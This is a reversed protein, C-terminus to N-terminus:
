KMGIPLATPSTKGRLLLNSIQGWTLYRLEVNLMIHAPVRKSLADNVAEISFGEFTSSPPTVGVTLVGGEFSVEAQGGTFANVMAKILTGSLKGTGRFKSLVVSRRQSIPDTSPHISLAKEWERLREESMTSLFSDDIVRNTRAELDELIPTEAKSLAEYEAIDQLILPLYLKLEKAM